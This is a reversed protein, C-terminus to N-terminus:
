CRQEICLRPEPLVRFIVCAICLVSPVPRMAPLVGIEIFEGVLRLGGGRPMQRSKGSGAQGSVELCRALWVRFESEVHNGTKALFEGRRGAPAESTGCVPGCGDLCQVGGDLECIEERGSIDHLM